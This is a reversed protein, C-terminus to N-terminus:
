IEIPSEKWVYGGDLGRKVVDKGARFYLAGMRNGPVVCEDCGEVLAFFTERSSSEQSMWMWGSWEGQDRVGRRGGETGDKLLPHLVDSLGEGEEGPLQARYLLLVTSVVPLEQRDIFGHPVETVHQLGPM